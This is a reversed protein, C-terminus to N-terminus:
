KRRRRTKKKNNNAGRFSALSGRDSTDKEKGPCSIQRIHAAIRVNTHQRPLKVSGSSKETLIEEKACQLTPSSSLEAKAGRFFPQHVSRQSNNTKKGERERNLDKASRIRDASHNATRRRIRRCPHGRRRHHPCHRQRLKQPSRCAGCGLTGRALTGDFHSPTRACM